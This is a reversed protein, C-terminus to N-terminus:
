GLMSVYDCAWYLTPHFLKDMLLSWLKYRQIKSIPQNVEDWLKLVQLQKDMSSNSNIGNYILASKSISHWTCNTKDTTRVRYFSSKRLVVTTYYNWERHRGTVRLKSTKKSRRSYLRNLLCDFRWYNSVGNRENHRWQLTLGLRHEWKWISLKWMYRSWLTTEIYLHRRVLIPFGM